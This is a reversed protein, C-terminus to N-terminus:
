TGPTLYRHGAAPYIELAVVTGMLPQSRLRRGGCQQNAAMGRSQQGGDARRMLIAQADMDKPNSDNRFAQKGKTISARIATGEAQPLSGQAGHWGASIEPNLAVGMPCDM